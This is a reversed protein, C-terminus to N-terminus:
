KSLSVSFLYVVRARERQRTAHYTCYVCWATTCYNNDFVFSMEWVQRKDNMETAGGRRESESGRVREIVGPQGRSKILATRDDRINASFRIIKRARRHRLRRRCRKCYNQRTCDAFGYVQGHVSHISITRGTCICTYHVHVGIPYYLLKTHLWKIQCRPLPNQACLSPRAYLPVKKTKEFERAPTRWRRTICAYSASITSMTNRLYNRNQSTSIPFICILIM